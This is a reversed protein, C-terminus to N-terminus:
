KAKTAKPQAPAPSGGNSKSLSELIALRDAKTRPTQTYAVQEHTTFRHGNACERRRRVINTNRIKKAELVDTWAGCEPCSIGVKV